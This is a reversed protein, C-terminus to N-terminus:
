TILMKLDQIGSEKLELDLNADQSRSNRIGQTRKIYILQGTMKLHIQIFSKDEFIINIIKARRKVEKIKKGVVLEKNGEFIKERFIKIDVVKLGSIAVNLQRAITEVEPLEPM